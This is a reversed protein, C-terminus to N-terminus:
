DSKRTSQDEEPVMGEGKNILNMFWEYLDDRWHPRPRTVESGIDKLCMMHFEMEKKLEPSLNQFQFGYSNDSPIKFISKAELSLIKNNLEFELKVLSDDAIKGDSKLFAGGDSINSIKGTMIQDDFFIKTSIDVIYRPSAEWWRINPEYYMKKVNPILFYTVLTINFAMPVVIGLLITSMHLKAQVGFVAHILLWLMCLLFVPYSWKKVSFIAYSAIFSPATMTLLGFYNSSISVLSKLYHYFTIDSRLFYYTSCLNVFPFIFFLFSLIIISWPKRLLSDEQTIRLYLYKLKLQSNFKLLNFIYCDTFFTRLLIRTRLSTM